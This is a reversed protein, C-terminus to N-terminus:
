QSDGLASSPSWDPAMDVCRGYHGQFALTVTCMPGTRNKGIILDLEGARPSNQDHVDERHVLLVIDADQEQAGSERLDSAVPRKDQRQEPGRNLQALVIVPIAFERALKKFERSLEAIANQRNEATRSTAMLGIYDVVLLAAPATRAMGRLRSRVHALSCNPSDDIVLPSEALAMAAPTIRRWDDDTLERRMLSTLPVRSQASILRMTIEEASMEMSMLLAPLGLKMATHAATQAGIVSKGHGPRGALFVLEGPALGNLAYTLDSFPTALGREAQRELSDTVEAVLERMTRLGASKPPETADDMLKRAREFGTEPDFSDSSADGLVSLAASVLHRRRYDAEVRAAHDRWGPLAAAALDHLYPAGGMRSLEGARSLEGLVAVPDTERGAEALALIAGLIIGHAPRYFYEPRLVDAVAEAHARSTMAIGLVAQEALILDPATGATAFVARDIAGTM